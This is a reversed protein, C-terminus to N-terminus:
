YIYVNVNPGNWVWEATLFGSACSELQSVPTDFTGLCDITPGGLGDLTGGGIVSIRFHSWEWPSAIAFQSATNTCDYWQSPDSWDFLGSITQGAPIGVQVTHACDACHQAVAQITIDCSSGNYVTTTQANSNFGIFCLLCIATLRTFNKM